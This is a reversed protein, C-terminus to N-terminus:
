ATQIQVQTTDSPLSNQCQCLNTKFKLPGAELVEQYIKDMGDMEVHSDSQDDVGCCCNALGAIVYSFPVALVIVFYKAEDLCRHVLSVTEYDETTPLRAVVGSAFSAMETLNHLVLFVYTWRAMLVVLPRREDEYTGYLTRTCIRRTLVFVLVTTAVNFFAVRVSSIGVETRWDRRIQNDLRLDVILLAVSYVLPVLIVSFVLGLWSGHHQFDSMHSLLLVILYLTLGHVLNRVCRYISETQAERYVFHTYYTDIHDQYLSMGLWAFLTMGTLLYLRWSKVRLGRAVSVFILVILVACILTIACRLSMLIIDLTELEYDEPAWNEEYDNELNALNIPPLPSLGALDGDQPPAPSGAGNPDPYDLDSM